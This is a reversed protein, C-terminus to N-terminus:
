EDWGFRLGTAKQFAKRATPLDGVVYGQPRKQETVAVVDDARMFEVEGTPFSGEPRKQVYM